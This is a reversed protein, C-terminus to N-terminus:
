KSRNIIPFQAPHMQTNESSLGRVTMLSKGPKRETLIPGASNLSDGVRVWFNLQDDKMGKARITVIMQYESLLNTHRVLAFSPFERGDLPPVPANLSYVFGRSNKTHSSTGYQWRPDPILGFAEPVEIILTVWEADVSSINLVSFLVLEKEHNLHMPIIVCGAMNSTMEGMPPRLFDNTLHLYSDPSESTRLRLEFRPKAALTRSEWWGLFCCLILGPVMILAATGNAKFISAGHNRLNLRLAAASFAFTLALIAISLYTFKRDM